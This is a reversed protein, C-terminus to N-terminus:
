EPQPQSPFTSRPAWGGRDPPAIDVVTFWTKRTEPAAVAGPGAAARASALGTVRELPCTSTAQSDPASSGTRVVLGGAGRDVAVRGLDGRCTLGSAPSPSGSETATM